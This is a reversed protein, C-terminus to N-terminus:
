YVLTQSGSPGLLTIVNVTKEIMRGTPTAYLHPSLVEEVEVTHRTRVLGAGAEIAAANEAEWGALPPCWAQEETLAITEVSAHKALLPRVTGAALKVSSRVRVVGLDFAGKISAREQVKFLRRFHAALMPYREPPVLRDLEDALPDPPRTDYDNWDGNSAIARFVAFPNESQWHVVPEFYEISLREHGFEDHIPRELPPRQTIDAWYWYRGRSEADICLKRTISRGGIVRTSDDLTATSM